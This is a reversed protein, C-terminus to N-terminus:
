PDVGAGAMAREDLEHVLERFEGLKGDRLLEMARSALAIKEERDLGLHDFLIVLLHLSGDVGGYRYCSCINLFLMREAVPKWIPPRGDRGESSEVVFRSFDTEVIKKTFPVPISGAVWQRKLRASNVDIYTRKNLMAIALLVVILLAVLCSLPYPNRWPSNRAMGVVTSKSRNIKPIRSRRTKRSDNLFRRL